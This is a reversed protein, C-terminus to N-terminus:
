NKLQEIIKNLEDYFILDSEKKVQITEVAHIVTSHDRNGFNHGIEPLSMDTLERTIYMAVQRAFAVPQTRKRAIMDSPKLKYYHVVSEKIAEVTVKKERGESGADKLCDKATELTIKAKTMSCYAIVRTICGELSRVDDKVINAIYLAVDDPVFVKEYEAKKKVIAVRTELDPSGIDAILGMEFRSRLREEIKLDQPKKDSTAVIQRNAMHLVNFTHFFEEQM